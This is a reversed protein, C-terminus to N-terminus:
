FVQSASFVLSLGEHGKALEIRLPTAIGSHFRFGLGYNTALDTLNLDSARPTVKGADFFVATDFFRNVMVRWEAQLSLSNRDRFRWSAYARLDPGGGLAPMMFFPIEQNSKTYTTQARGHLSIVWAERLIPIHQIAEYDVEDFGYQRQTDSFDHATVGLFGGRRSYGAATRSDLAITGQSHVYTPQAGLGPLTAPTYVTEVSPASGGSAGTQKWQTTELGGRLVFLSRMPWVELVASAYPQQFAYNARDHESTGAGLGYFGVQTAERWGGIVSLTGRRHFLRPALFEAEIRKYGSFTVSGRVDLQNYPGLYRIYGAGLTFGGGSYASTFFPHWHLGGTLLLDSIQNVAQEARGPTFPHLTLAKEAQAQEILAARTDPEQPDATARGPSLVVALAAACALRAIM